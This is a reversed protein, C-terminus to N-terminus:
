TKDVSGLTKITVDRNRIRGYILMENVKSHFSDAKFITCWFLDM